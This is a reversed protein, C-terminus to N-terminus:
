KLVSSLDWIPLMLAFILWLILISILMIFIPGIASSLHSIRRDINQKYVQTINDLIIAMNNTKQATYLLRITINDFLKTNNFADSINIGNKIDNIIQEIKYLIFSNNTLSKVSILATQFQYNSQILMNLALFFRYLLFDKYISSLVPINIILFKDINKTYKYYYYKLGFFIIVISSIIFIYYNDLFQKTNLLYKTALPLDSGFQIFIHEFKPIVFNFIIITSLFLTM